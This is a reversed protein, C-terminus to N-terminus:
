LHLPICSGGSIHPWLLSLPSVWVEIDDSEGVGKWQREISLSIPFWGAPSDPYHPLCPGGRPPLSDYMFHIPFTLPLESIYAPPVYTCM